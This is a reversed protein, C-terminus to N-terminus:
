RCMKTLMSVIEELYEKGKQIESEPFYGMVRFVDLLAGCELASGRAITYFNQKDATTKRGGSWDARGGAAAMMATGCM